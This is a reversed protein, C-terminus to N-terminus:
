AVEATITFGQGRLRAAYPEGLGAAPTTVGTALGEGAALALAAQSIMVATGAYGPDRQDAVTSVVRRGSTTDAHVEITFHGKARAQESPGDGPSPLVRDAVQRLGPTALSAVFAPLAAAIGLGTVLGKLGKGTDHLERYRFSRGYAWAQLANSRRVIQENYRAMFFPAAFERTDASSELWVFSNRRNRPEPEADRDPSLAYPDSSSRGPTRVGHRSSDIQTRLADITGGSMGGSFSRVHMTTALLEGAGAERAATAAALVGLDSPVSDFGCANVLTAGSAKAPADFTDIMDRAFLVEGNLDVYHTGHAACAGATAMGYKVYPGVVSIVVATRQAMRGLSDADFADAIVLPLEPHGTQAALARLKAEDRGALAVRTGTPASRLLEDAILRGVFGTAGFVIVDFERDM